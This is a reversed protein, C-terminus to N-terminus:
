RNIYIYIYVLIGYTSDVMRSWGRTLVLVADAFQADLPLTGVGKTSGMKRHLPEQAALPAMSGHTRQHPQWLWM